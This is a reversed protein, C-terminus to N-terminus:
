VSQQTVCSSLTATDCVDLSGAVPTTSVTDDCREGNQTVAVVSLDNLSRLVKGSSPRCAWTSNWSSVMIAVATKYHEAAMWADHLSPRQQGGVVLDRMENMSPCDEVLSSYAQTYRSPGPGVPCMVLIEWMILSFSYIDSALLIDFDEYADVWTSLMEPSAYRPSGVVPVFNYTSPKFVDGFESKRRTLGLAHRLQVVANGLDGICASGDSRMFVNSPNLHCHAVRPKIPSYRRQQCSAREEEEHLYCLGAAVDRMIRLGQELEVGRHNLLYGHLSGRACDEYVIWIDKVFPKVQIGGELFKVVNSHRLSFLDYLLCEHVWYRANLMGGDYIRVMAREAALRTDPPQWQCDCIASFAGETCRSQINVRSALPSRNSLFNLYNRPSFMDLTDMMVDCSRALDHNARRAANGRYSGVLYASWSSCVLCVCLCCIVTILTSTSWSPSKGPRLGSPAPTITALGDGTMYQVTVNKAIGLRLYRDYTAKTCANSDNSCRRITKWDDEEWSMFKQLAENKDYAAQGQGVLPTYAHNVNWRWFTPSCEHVHFLRTANYRDTCLEMGGCHAAAELVTSSSRYDDPHKLLTANVWVTFSPEHKDNTFTIHPDKNCGAQWLCTGNRPNGTIRWQHWCVKGHCWNPGDCDAAGLTCSCKQMADVRQGLLLLMVVMTRAILLARASPLTIRRSSVAPETRQMSPRAPPQRTAQELPQSSSYGRRRREKEPSPLLSGPSHPINLRVGRPKIESLARTEEEVNLSCGQM